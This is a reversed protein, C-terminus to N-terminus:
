IYVVRLRGVFAFYLLLIYFICKLVYKKWERLTRNKYLYKKEQLVKHINRTGVQM